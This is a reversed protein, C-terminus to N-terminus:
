FIHFLHHAVNQRQCQPRCNSSLRTIRNIIEALPHKGIEIVLLPHTTCLSCRSTELLSSTCPRAQARTLRPPAACARLSASSTARLFRLVAPPLYHLLPCARAPPPHRHIIRPNRSRRMFESTPLNRLPTAQRRSYSDGSCRAAVSIVGRRRIRHPSRYLM